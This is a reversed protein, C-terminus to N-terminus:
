KSTQRPDATLHKPDYKHESQVPVPARENNSGKSPNGGGRTKRNETRNENRYNDREDELNDQDVITLLSNVHEILKKRQNLNTRIISEKGGQKKTESTVVIKIIMKTMELIQGEKIRIVIERIIEIRELITGIRENAIRKRKGPNTKSAKVKERRSGIETSCNKLPIWLTKERFALMIGQSLRIWNM